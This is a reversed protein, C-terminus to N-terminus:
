RELDDHVAGGFGVAGLHLVQLGGPGEDEVAALRLGFPVLDAAIEMGGPVEVFPQEVGEGVVRDERQPGIGQAVRQDEIVAVGGGEVDVLQDEGANDGLPDVGAEFRHERDPDVLHGPVVEVLGVVVPGADGLRLVEAAPDALRDIRHDGGEGQRQRNGPVALGPRDQHADLVGADM